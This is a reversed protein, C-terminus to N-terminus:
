PTAFVRESAHLVHAREPRRELLDPGLIDGPEVVLAQLRFEGFQVPGGVDDVGRTKPQQSLDLPPAGIGSVPV